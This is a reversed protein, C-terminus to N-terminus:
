KKLLELYVISPFRVDYAENDRYFQIDINDIQKLMKEERIAAREEGLRKMKESVRIIKSGPRRRVISVKNRLHSTRRIEQESNRQKLLETGEIVFLTDHLSRRYGRRHKRVRRKHNRIRKTRDGLKFKSNGSGAITSFGKERAESTIDLILLGALFVLAVLAIKLTRTCAM